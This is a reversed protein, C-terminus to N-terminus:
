KRNKYKSLKWLFGRWKALNPYSRNCMRPILSDTVGMAESAIKCSAFTELVNESMDMKIVAVSDKRPKSIYEPVDETIDVSDTYFWLYGAAAKSSPSELNSKCSAFINTTTKYGASKSAEQLSAFTEIYKGDLSYKSVKRCPNHVNLAEKPLSTTGKYRWFYGGEEVIDFKSLLTNFYTRSRGISYSAAQASEFTELINGSFELKEVPRSHTDAPPTYPLIDIGKPFIDSCERWMYGGGSNIKYNCCASILSYSSGIESAANALSSFSKIYKGDLSYMNVEKTTTPIHGIHSKSLNKRHEDSFKMGKRAISVKKRIESTHLWFPNTTYPTKRGARMRAIQDPTRKLGRIKAIRKEISEKSQPPRKKGKQSRSLNECWDKRRPPLKKGKNLKSLHQKTEESLHYGSRGSGGLTLNYGFNPDSSKFFKIAVSEKINLTNILDQRNSCSINFLVEYTFSDYGYKKVAYHFRKCDKDVRAKKHNSIRSKENTTQGIYVKGNIKNTYKYIIGYFSNVKKM